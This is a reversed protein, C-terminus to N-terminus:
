PPLHPVPSILKFDQPLAFVRSHCRREPSNSCFHHKFRGLLCARIITYITSDVALDVLLNVNVLDFEINLATEPPGMSGRSRLPKKFSKALSLVGKTIFLRQSLFDSIITNNFVIGQNNQCYMPMLLYKILILWPLPSPSKECCLFDFKKEPLM